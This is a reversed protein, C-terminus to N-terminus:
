VPPSLHFAPKLCTKNFFRQAMWSSVSVWLCSSVSDQLEPSTLLQSYLRATPLQLGNPLCLFYPSCTLSFFLFYPITVHAVGINLPPASPALSLSLALPNQFLILFTKEPFGHKLFSPTALLALHEFSDLLILGSFLGNSKFIM